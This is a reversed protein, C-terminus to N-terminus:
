ANISNLGIRYLMSPHIHYKVLNQLVPVQTKRIVLMFQDNRVRELRSEINFKNLLAKSLLEVETKTFNNTCL